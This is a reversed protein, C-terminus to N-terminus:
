DFYTNEYFFLVKTEYSQQPWDIRPVKRAYSCVRGNFAFYDVSEAKLCVCVCVSDHEIAWKLKECENHRFFFVFICCFANVFYNGKGIAQASGILWGIQLWALLGNLALYCVTYAIIHLNNYYLHSCRWKRDEVGYMFGGSDSKSLMAHAPYACVDTYLTLLTRTASITSPMPETQLTFHYIYLFFFISFAIHTAIIFRTMGRNLNHLM